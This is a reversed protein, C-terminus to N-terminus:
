FLIKAKHLHQKTRILEFGQSVLALQARKKSQLPYQSFYNLGFNLRPKQSLPLLIIRQDNGM